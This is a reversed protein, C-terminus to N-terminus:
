DKIIFSHFCDKYLGTFRKKSVEKVEISKSRRYCMIWKDHVQASLPKPNM